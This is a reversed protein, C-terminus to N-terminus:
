ALEIIQHMPIDHAETPLSDVIRCPFAVGLRLASGARELIRDYFGRGRGLRSGDRGFGLAPCIVVDIEEPEITPLHTKPELIGFTGRVLDDESRVRHFHLETGEVRPFYFRHPGSHSLLAHLSPEGPLASFLAVHRPPLLDLQDRVRDCILRSTEDPTPDTRGKLWRRWTPKDDDPGPTTAQTAM